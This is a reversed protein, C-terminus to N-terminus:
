GELVRRWLKAAHSSLEPLRMEVEAILARRDDGEVGELLQQVDWGDQAGGADLKLLILDAATVVPIDADQATRPAARDLIERQWKFKGVVVDVPIEGPFQLRVVGALPDAQDGKRIEVSIEQNALDKWLDPRLCSADVAFLDHDYTARNVGYVALAGAGILAHPINAEHLAAAVRGLLTM